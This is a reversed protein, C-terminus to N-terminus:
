GDEIDQKLNNIEPSITEDNLGYIVRVKGGHVGLYVLRSLTKKSGGVVSM